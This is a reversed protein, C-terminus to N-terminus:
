PGPFVITFVRGLDVDGLYRPVALLPRGLLLRSRIRPEVGRHDADVGAAPDERGAGRSGSVSVRFTPGDAVLLWSCPDPTGLAGAVAHLRDVCFPLVTGVFDTSWDALGLGLDTGHVEVETLRLLM